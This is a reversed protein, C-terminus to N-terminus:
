PGERKVQGGLLQRARTAESSDPGLRVVKQFQKAAQEGQGSQQYAMGLGLIGLLYDPKIAVAQEFSRIAEPYNEQALFLHGLNLHIKEPTAYGKDNLATQFEKLARDYEKLEKYVVGLHNHADTFYPNIRVAERLHAQADKYESRSLYVLGLLNEAESHKPDLAIAKNLSEIAQQTKGQQFQVEGLRFYRQADSTASSKTQSSACALALALAGAAVIRLGIRTDM